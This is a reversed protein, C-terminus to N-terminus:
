AGVLWDEREHRIRLIEVRGPRLRYLILYPTTRVRLVRVDDRDPRGGHPFKELFRARARISSAIRLAQDPSRNEILWGNIRRLDAQAPVTWAIERM